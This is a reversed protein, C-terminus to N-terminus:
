LLYLLYSEKMQVFLLQKIKIQTNQLSKKGSVVISFCLRSVTKYLKQVTKLKSLKNNGWILRSPYFLLFDFHDLKAYDRTNWIISRSKENLSKLRFAEVEWPTKDISQSIPRLDGQFPRSARAGEVAAGRLLDSYSDLRRDRRVFTGCASFSLRCSTPTSRFCM